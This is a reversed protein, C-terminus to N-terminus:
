FFHRDLIFKLQRAEDLLAQSRESSFVGPSTINAIVFGRTSRSFRFAKEYPTRLVFGEDEDLGGSAWSMRPKSQWSATPGDVSM